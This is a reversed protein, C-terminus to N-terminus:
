VRAQVAAIKESLRAHEVADLPFRWMLAIAALKLGVPVIAYLAVLMGLGATGGGTADTRFGALELVPFALGVALALSLKTALGWLAFYLGSRRAGSSVTDVDIVDAQISSPLALDAGLALGTLVCIAAFGWLDGPGLLPVTIFIACAGLMAVSWTRHKGFRRSVALWLPVGAVGCLFYLFLFPGQMQPAELVRAVFFLFLTAPLGNAFGNLVFAALLRLFPRNARVHALGARLAPPPRGTDAPEPLRWVAALTLVPLAVAVFLALIHLSLAQGKAGLAEAIGPVSVALVTGVLVMGERAGAIRSRGHYDSVLDAGWATYPIVCATYGLSLAIGWGLLYLGSAGEPPTLIMYAAVAAPLSAALFWGRRRGLPPHFRDSLVGVVPDSLADILRVALLILGVQALPLGISEAYFTPLIVYLPLTLAALPLAPGAYAALQALTLGRDLPSRAM